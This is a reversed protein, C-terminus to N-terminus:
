QDKNLSFVDEELQRIKHKLFEVDKTPIQKTLEEVKNFRKDASECQEGIGHLSNKILELRRDVWDFRQDVVAFGKQVENKIQTREFKIEDKMSTMEDKMETMQELLKGMMEIMQKDM